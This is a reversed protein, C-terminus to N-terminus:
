TNLWLKGSRAVTNTLPERKIFISSTTSANTSLFIPQTFNKLKSSYTALLNITDPSIVVCPPLTIAPELMIITISLRNCQNSIQNTTGLTITDIRNDHSCILHKIHTLCNSDLFHHCQTTSHQNTRLVSLKQSHLYHHSFGGKTQLAIQKLHSLTIQRNNEAQLSEVYFAM